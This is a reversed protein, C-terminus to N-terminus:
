REWCSFSPSYIMIEQKASNALSASVVANTLYMARVFEADSQHESIQQLSANIIGVQLGLNLNAVASNQIHVSPAGEKSSSRSFYGMPFSVEGM